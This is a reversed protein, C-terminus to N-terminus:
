KSILTASEWYTSLPWQPFDLAGASACPIISFGKWDCLILWNAELCSFPLADIMVIGRRNKPSSIFGPEIVIDSLLVSAM